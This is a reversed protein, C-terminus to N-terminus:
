ECVYVCLSVYVCVQPCVCAYICYMCMYVCTKFLFACYCDWDWVFQAFFLSLQQKNGKM